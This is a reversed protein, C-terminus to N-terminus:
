DVGKKVSDGSYTLSRGAVFKEWDTVPMVDTHQGLFEQVQIEVNSIANLQDPSPKCCMRKAMLDEFSWSSVQRGHSLYLFNLTLLVITVWARSSLGRCTACPLEKAASVTTHSLCEKRCTVVGSKEAFDYPIPLPMLDADPM